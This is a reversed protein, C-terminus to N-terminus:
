RQPRYRTGVKDIYCYGGKDLLMDLVMNRKIECGTLTDGSDGNLLKPRVDDVEVIEDGEHHYLKVDLQSVTGAIRNVCAAVGPINMAVEKTITDPHLLAQLLVDDVSPTVVETNEERKERKRFPWM